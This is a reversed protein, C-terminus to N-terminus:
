RPGKRNTLMKITGNWGRLYTDQAVFVPRIFRQPNGWKPVQRLWISDTAMYLDDMAGVPMMKPDVTWPEGGSESTEIHWEGGKSSFIADRITCLVFIPGTLHTDLSPGIVTLDHSSVDMEAAVRLDRVEHQRDKSAPGNPVPYILHAAFADGSVMDREDYVMVRYQTVEKHSLVWEETQGACLTICSPMGHDHHLEVTVSRLARFLLSCSGSPRKFWVLNAVEDAGMDM